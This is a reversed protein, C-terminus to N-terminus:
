SYIVTVIVLIPLNLTFVVHIPHTILKVMSILGGGTTTTESCVNLPDDGVNLTVSAIACSFSSIFSSGLSPAVLALASLLILKNSAM